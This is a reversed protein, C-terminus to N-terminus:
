VHKKKARTPQKLTKPPLPQVSNAAVARVPLNNAISLDLSAIAKGWKQYTDYILRWRRFQTEFHDVSFTIEANQSTTVQLIEPSTINVRQLEVLGVMPSHEFEALLNLGARGQVNDIQHGPQLEPATLGVIIPLHQPGAAPVARWRNDIPQVVYGQADLFYTAERFTGNTGPQTVVTQAVPERETVRIKLTRPLVREVAVSDIPPLIELDRKVKLIDLALLNQGPHIKAWYRLVNTSLVGDTQIEVQRIAFAENKYILKDLLWSGGRWVLLVALTLSFLVAFIVGLLRTRHARTQSTRLKVDLLEAREVM